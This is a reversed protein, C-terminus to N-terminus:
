KYAGKASKVLASSGALAFSAVGLGLAVDVMQNTRKRVINNKRKSRRLIRRVM